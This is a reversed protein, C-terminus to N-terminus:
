LTQRLRKSKIKCKKERWKLRPCKTGTSPNKKQAM